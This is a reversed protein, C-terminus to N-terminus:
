WEYENLCHDSYVAIPEGDFPYNGYSTDTEILRSYESGVPKIFINSPKCFYKWFVKGGPKGMGLNEEHLPEDWFADIATWEASNTPYTGYDATFCVTNWAHGGVAELLGDDNEVYVKGTMILALIGYMRAFFNFAQAYGDCLARQNPDLVGYLTARWPNIKWNGATAGSIAPESKIVIYDHIVKAVKKKQSEDLSDGININLTDAVLDDVEITAQKILADIGKITAETQFICQAYIVKGNEDKTLANPGIPPCCLKPNDNRVRAFANIIQQEEMNGFQILPICFYSAQDSTVGNDILNQEPTRLGGMFRVYWETNRKTLETDFRHEVGDVAITRYPVSFGEAFCRYLWEYLETTGDNVSCQWGYEKLYPEDLIVAPELMRWGNGKVEAADTCVKGDVVSLAGEGVIVYGFPLQHFEGNQYYGLVDIENDM